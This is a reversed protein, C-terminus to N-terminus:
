NNELDLKRKVLKSIDDLTRINEFDLEDEDIEINFEKEIFLILQMGFLSHVLGLAFIDEDAKLDTKSTSRSLYSKIKERIKDM